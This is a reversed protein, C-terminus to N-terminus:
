MMLQLSSALNLNLLLDFGALKIEIIRCNMCKVFPPFSSVDVVM